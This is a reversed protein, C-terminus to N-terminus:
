RWGTFDFIMLKLVNKFQIKQLKKRIGRTALCANQRSFKLHSVLPNKWLYNFRMWQFMKTMVFVSLGSSLRATGCDGLVCHGGAWQLLMSLFSVTKLLLSKRMVIRHIALSSIIHRPGTKWRCSHLHQIIISSGGAWVHGDWRRWSEEEWSSLLAM